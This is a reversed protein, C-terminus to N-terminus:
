LQAGWFLGLITDESKAGWATVRSYCLDDFHVDLRRFMCNYAVCSTENRAHGLKTRESACLEADHTDAARMLTLVDSRYSSADRGLSRETLALSRAELGLHEVCSEGSGTAMNCVIPQDRDTTQASRVYIQKPHSAMTETDYYGLNPAPRGNATRNLEAHELWLMKEARERYKGEGTITALSAIPVAMLMNVNKVLWGRDCPGITKYYAFGRGAAESEGQGWTADIAAKAAALYRPDKTTRYLEILFQTIRADDYLEDDYAQNRALTCGSAFTTNGGRDDGSPGSLKWYRGWGVKGDGNMDGHAILTDGAIRAHDLWHSAGDARYAELLIFANTAVTSAAVESPDHRPAYTYSAPRDYAAAAKLADARYAAERDAAQAKGPSCLPQALLGILVLALGRWVARGRLALRDRGSRPAFGCHEGIMPM